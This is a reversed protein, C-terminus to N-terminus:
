NTMQNTLFSSECMGNIPNREQGGPCPVLDIKPKNNRRRGGGRKRGGGGRRGGGGGGGRRGEIVKSKMEGTCMNYLLRNQLYFMGYIIALIVMNIYFYMPYKKKYVSYVINMIVLILLIFGIVSLVYFYLCYEKSISGYISDLFM